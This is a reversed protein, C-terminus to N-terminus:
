VRKNRDKIKQLEEVLKAIAIDKELMEEKHQLNMKKMQESLSATPEMMESSSVATETNTRAASTSAQSPESITFIGGGTKPRYPLNPTPKNSVVELKRIITQVKGSSDIVQSLVKTTVNNDKAPAPSNHGTNDTSVDPIPTWKTTKSNYNYDTSNKANTKFNDPPIIAKENTTNNNTNTKSNNSISYSNDAPNNPLKNNSSSSKLDNGNKTILGSNNAETKNKTIPANSQIETISKNETKSNDNAITKLLDGSIASSKTNQNNDNRLNEEENVIENEEIENKLNTEQIKNISSNNNINSSSKASPNSIKPYDRFNNKRATNVVM